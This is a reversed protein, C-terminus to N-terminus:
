ASVQETTTTGVTVAAGGTTLSTLAAEALVIAAVGDSATLPPRDGGRAWALFAAIERHYPSTGIVPPLLGTSAGVERADLRVEPHATSDHQLLGGTGAVEITTRFTTGPPGWTGAVHSLAGSAHTLLLHATTVGAVPVIQQAAVEVVEGALWRAQDLDHIMQDLVIGGSREVDHFWPATPGAGTRTFRLVALAGLEGAAVAAHLAEYAPFWRVVHGPMLKRGAAAAEEVLQQAQASTRALPKECLVDLGVALAARVIEPHSDTPTCVDVIEAGDLAAELTPVAEADPSTAALEAAGAHSHIRVRAGLALWGQLHPRAIGGAGILAVVPPATM